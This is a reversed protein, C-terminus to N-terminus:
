LFAVNRVVSSIHEQIATPVFMYDINLWQVEDNIIDRSTHYQFRGNIQEFKFLRIMDEKIELLYEDGIM